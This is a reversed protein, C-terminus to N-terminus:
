QTRITGLLKRMKDLQYFGSRRDGERYSKEAEDVLDACEAFVRKPGKEREAVELGHRLGAFALDLTWQDESPYGDREPFHDPACMRVFVVYDKFGHLDDFPFPASM